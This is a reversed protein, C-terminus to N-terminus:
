GARRSGVANRAIHSIDSASDSQPGTGSNRARRLPAKAVLDTDVPRQEHRGVVAATRAVPAGIVGPRVACPPRLPM